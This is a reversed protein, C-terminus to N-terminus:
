RRIAERLPKFAEELRGSTFRYGQDLDLNRLAEAFMGADDLFHIYGLDRLWHCSSQVKHNYNGFAICPTGTLASFLVAHLRDTVVVKVTSLKRLFADIEQERNELPIRHALRTDAIEVSFGSQLLTNKVSYYADIGLATEVDSRLILLVGSREGAAEFPPLSLVMDPTLEVRNKYLGKMIEFSDPERAILTLDRHAAYLAATKRKLADAEPTGAFYITQPFHVIKNKPFSRIAFSRIEEQDRYQSGMCGGGQLMILADPRIARRLRKKYTRVQAESVEILKLGEREFFRKEAYGIASDGLNESEPSGFLICANKQRLASWDPERNTEKPPFAKSRLKLVRLIFRSGRPYRVRIRATPGLMRLLANSSRIERLFGKANAIEAAYQGDSPNSKILDLAAAATQRVLHRQIQGVKAGEEIYRLRNAAFCDALNKVSPTSIISNSHQLYYYKWDRIVAVRKAPTFVRHMISIDEYCRGVPFEIGDFLATKFLKNCPHSSMEENRLLDRKAEEGSLTRDSDYFLRRKHHGEYVKVIGCVSIDADNDVLARHLREVFDLDVWDDSDILSIYAGTAAALGANRASSVGGNEKHIVKVRADRAAYEDCLMPCNDPSGDDILIVELNRYTQGLVTNICRALYAETKYVPILISIREAEM